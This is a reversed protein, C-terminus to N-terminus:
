NIVFKKYITRNMNNEFRAIYVGSHLNASFQNQKIAKILIIRGTMDIIKLNGNQLGSTNKLNFQYINGLQEITFDILKNKSNILTPSSLSDEITKVIFEAFKPGIFQNAATNPHSDNGDHSKEYDYKLCNIRGNVPNQNSEALYGWIDFIYVNKHEKGDNLWENKVWKVFEHARYSFMTDSSVLRHEPVLTWVIFKNNPYKDLEALIAKYQLKYNEISKIESSVDPSGTDENVDAGPFCHKFIIVNYNKTINDICEIGLTDNNCKHNVWLNWYDYPYNAWPYPSDPYARQILQYNKSYTTNYNNIWEEVNGEDYVGAGTSHHLFITSQSFSYISFLTIAIILFVIKKM